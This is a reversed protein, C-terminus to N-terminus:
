SRVAVIAEADADISASVSGEVGVNIDVVVGVTTGDGDSVCAVFVKCVNANVSDRFSVDADVCANRSISANARAGAIGDVSVDTGASNRNHRRSLYYRQKQCFKFFFYLLSM